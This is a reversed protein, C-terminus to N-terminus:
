PIIINEINVGPNQQIWTRIKGILTELETRAVEPTLAINKQSLRTLAKDAAEKVAANYLPHAFGNVHAVKDLAIGNLLENMHFATGAPGKAATQVLTHETLEWPFLHHAQQANGVSLGLVRRLQGRRGFSIQDNALRIWKLATKGGATVIIRQAMKVGASWWGVIPIASVYSLAAMTGNGDISYIIGNLVDAVEGVVPFLGVIDLGLQVAEKNAEWFLHAWGWDPHEIKLEQMNSRVLIMYRMAHIGVPMMSPNPHYQELIAAYAPDSPSDTVGQRALELSIMSGAIVEPTMTEEALAAAVFEEAFSPTNILWNQQGITLTLRQALQSVSQALIQQPTLEYPDPDWGPEGCPDTPPPSFAGVRAQGGQHAADPNTPPTDGGSCPDSPPVSGGGSGGTGGDSSGGGGGAPPPGDDMFEEWCVSMFQTTLCMDYCEDCETYSKCSLHEKLLPCDVTYTTVDACRVNFMNPGVEHQQTDKGLKVTIKQASSHKPTRFLSRDTIKFKTHKFVANDFQMFFVAFKEANGNTMAENQLLEKYQWDCAYSISTDALSAKIIMAANVRNQSDRVFPIYYIDYSITNAHPQKRGESMGAVTARSSVGARAMIKDWVPYGIKKVTAEVFPQKANKRQLFNVLSQEAPDASRNSKFFKETVTFEEAPRTIDSKRCSLGAAISLLCMIFMLKSRTSKM